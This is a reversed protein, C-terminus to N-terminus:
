RWDDMRTVALAQPLRTVFQLQTSALRPPICFHLSEAHLPAKAPLTESQPPIPSQPRTLSQTPAQAAAARVVTPMATSSPLPQAPKIALVKEPLLESGAAAEDPLDAGIHPLENALITQSQKLAVL